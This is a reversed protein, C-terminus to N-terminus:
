RWGSPISSYNDLGTCDKFCYDGSISAPYGAQGQRNWLELTGTKPTSGKLASCEAFAYSFSEILKNNDFLGKPINQLSTCKRFTQNSYKIKPSYALLDDPINTLSTCRAFSFGINSLEANNKFLDKPIKKLKSCDSFLGYVSSLTDNSELLGEPIEEISTRAFVSDMTPTRVGAFLDKPIKILESCSSFTNYLRYIYGTKFTIKVKHLGTSGFDYDIASTGVYIPTGDETTISEIGEPSQVLRIYSTQDSFYHCYGDDKVAAQMLRRRLLSM